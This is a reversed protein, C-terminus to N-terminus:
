YVLLTPHWMSVTRTTSYSNYESHTNTCISAVHSVSHANHQEMTLNHAIWNEFM